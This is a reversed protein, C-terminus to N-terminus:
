NNTDVSIQLLAIAKQYNQPTRDGLVYNQKGGCGSMCPYLM